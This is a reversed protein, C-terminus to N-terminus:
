GPPGTRAAVPHKWLTLHVMFSQPSAGHWQEVGPETYITEGPRLTVVEGGREQVLATGM